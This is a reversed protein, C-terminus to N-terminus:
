GILTPRYKGFNSCSIFTPGKEVWHIYQLRKTTMMLSLPLIIKPWWWRWWTATAPLTPWQQDRSQDLRKWYHLIMLLCYDTVVSYRSNRWLSDIRGKFCNLSPSLVVDDSLSNWTNVFTRYGFFQERDQEATDKRFRKAVSWHRLCVLHTPHTGRDPFYM